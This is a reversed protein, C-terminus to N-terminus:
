SSNEDDSPTPTVFPVGESAHQVFLQKIYSEEYVLHHNEIALLKQTKFIKKRRQRVQLLKSSLFNFTALTAAPTETTVGKIFPTLSGVVEEEEGVKM